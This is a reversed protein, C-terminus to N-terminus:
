RNRENDFYHESKTSLVDIEDYMDPTSGGGHDGYEPYLKTGYYEDTPVIDLVGDFHYGCGRLFMEFNELVEPLSEVKCEQVVLLEDVFQNSHDCVFKFKPM